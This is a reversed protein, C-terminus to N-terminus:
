HALGWKKANAQFFGAAQKIKIWNNVYNIWVQDDQPLLMAIPSPARPEAGAVQVVPFKGVLTAGEINSTIFVDARGAIVEQYGRAPAEVVKIDADPFYKRALAEFTTGLTTAVKVDPKNISEWGDFRAAKDETTFPFIEVAIYSESFGAVKMRPPSISASGTLQYQGAVVGNVLTKWDTPVFELEVGLDKALETMVDIDYGKYQNTAPDRLSMPNWDGTTGVKLVGDSLIQNLASQASLPSAALGFLGAALGLARFLKMM